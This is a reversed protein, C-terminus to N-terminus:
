AGPRHCAVRMGSEGQPDHGGVRGCHDTAPRRRASHEIDPEATGGRADEGGRSSPNDTRPHRVPPPPGANPGPEHREGEGVPPQQETGFTSLWARYERAVRLAETGAATIIYHRTRRGNREERSSVLGAKAMDDMVKYLTGFPIESGAYREFESAIKRGNLERHAVLALLQLQRDSLMKDPPM